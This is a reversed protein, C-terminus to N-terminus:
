FIAKKKQIYCITCTNDDAYNYLICQVICYFIYNNFINSLLPGLISGLADRKFLKEWTSTFTGLTSCILGYRAPLSIYCYLICSAREHM